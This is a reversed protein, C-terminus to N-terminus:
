KADKKVSGKPRGVTGQKIKDLDSERIMYDRGFREAKLQGKTILAQIRRISVGKKEAAQKTNLFKSM